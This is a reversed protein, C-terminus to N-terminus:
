PQRKESDRNRLYQVIHLFETIDYPKSCTADAGDARYRAMQEDTAFATLVVVKTKPAPNMQKFHRLVLDGTMGPMRVDLIALDYGGSLLKKLAVDGSFATDVSYGEDELTERLMDSQDPDDEALLIEAKFNQLMQMSILGEQENDYWGAHRIASDFWM